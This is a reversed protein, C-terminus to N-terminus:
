EGIAQKVKELASYLSVLREDSGFAKDGRVQTLLEQARNVANDAARFRKACGLVNEFESLKQRAKNLFYNVSQRSIGGMEEAIEALSLDSNYRLDMADRQSKSLLDGYIDLLLVYDVNDSM